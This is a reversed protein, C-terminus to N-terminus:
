GEKGIQKLVRQIPNAHEMYSELAEAIHISKQEFIPAWMEPASKASDCIVCTIVGSSELLAKKFEKTLKTLIGSGILIPYSRDGLNLKM